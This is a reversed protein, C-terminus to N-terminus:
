NREDLLAQLRPEPNPFNDTFNWYFGKHSKRKGNCCSSIHGESFEGANGAQRVTEYHNVEGTVKCRRTVAKANPHAKGSKGKMHSQRGLEDYSHKHNEGHTMWELNSLQNNLKNGDKHNVTRKEEPNTLFNLCVLRHVGYSKTNGVEDILNVRLYGTRDICGVLIREDTGQRKLTKVRGTNSIQYRGTYGEIDKFIEDMTLGKTTHNGYYVM